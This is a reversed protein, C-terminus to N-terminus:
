ILLVMEFEVLVILQMTLDMLFRANFEHGWWLEVIQDGRGGVMYNFLLILVM